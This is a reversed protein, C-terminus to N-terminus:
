PLPVLPVVLTVPESSTDSKTRTGHAVLSPYLYTPRKDDSMDQEQLLAIDFSTVTINGGAGTVGGAALAALVDAQSRAPYQSREADPYPTIHASIVSMRSADVIMEATNVPTGDSQIIDRDDLMAPYVVRVRAPFEPPVCTTSSAMPLAPPLPILTPASAALFRISSLAARDTCLGAAQSKQWWTGWDPSLIPERVHTLDFGRDSLFHSSATMIADTAPLTTLTIPQTPATKDKGELTHTSGTYSWSYGRDDNWSLTLESISPINGIYADSIGLSNTLNRLETDNPTGPLLRLVTVSSPLEPLAANVTVVGNHPVAALHPLTGFGFTPPTPVEATKTQLTTAIQPVAPLTFCGAGCLSLLGSLFLLSFSSRPM